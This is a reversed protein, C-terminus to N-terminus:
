QSWVSSHEACIRHYVHSEEERQISELVYGCLIDIDCTKAIEDWLHEVQVAAEAMGQAWLTPACEGCAAIRPPQGKAAKAAAAVLNGAVKQFRVPDPLDNVMFTSLTEAVDLSLYRGQEIATALKVGHKQLRQLLSKRHSETVVVIVANGALLAAKIFRTFGVLLSADDFYFQVEHSRTIEGERPALSPLAQDPCLDTAQADTAHAFSYGSLGRSVFQRGHRVAEVAALLESGAHAKVVYGLAGLTFAEQVVDPSSEQSLFLIKSQPALKRIQRAAEIGNLTPLGLDLVILDPQIEEAKQVAELGDSAEGIIQLEPRQELTSCVFRRFPEYDDVVFVRVPSM